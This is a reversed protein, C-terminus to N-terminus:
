LYGPVVPGAPHENLVDELMPDIGEDILRAIQDQVNWRNVYNAVYAAIRCARERVDFPAKSRAVQLAIHAFPDNAEFSNGCAGVMGDAIADIVFAARKDDSCAFRAVIDVYRGGTRLISRCLEAPSMGYIWDAVDETLLGSRADREIGERREDDENLSVRKRFARLLEGADQYRNDPDQSTAKEAVARLAHAEQLPHGAMVFNILRGLSFVDSRKDGERLYLLQEPSCYFAQGFNGTSTTQYSALTELNKGLGFDAIKLEGRLLFINTPSIDRHIIGRTHIESLASIVQDLIAIRTKDPLPESMFDRLTREGAEMTYSLTGEDYEYVRLVGQVGQLSKMIEYERKFRHRIGRDFASSDSLKKMVLGSSKRLYARAFGGEGLLVLDDDYVVLAYNGDVGSLEFGDPRLIRNLEGHALSTKEKAEVESCECMRMFYRHSLITSFFDKSRGRAILETIKERAYRWRTPAHGWQYEERYGFNENFFTVLQPGSLYPFFDGADGVFTQAISDLAAGSVSSSM